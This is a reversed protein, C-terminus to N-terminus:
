KQWIKYEKYMPFIYPNYPKLIDDNKEVYIKTDLKDM